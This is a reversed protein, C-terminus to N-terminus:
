SSFDTHVADASNYVCTFKLKASQVLNQVKQRPDLFSWNLSSPHLWLGVCLDAFFVLPSVSPQSLLMLEFKLWILPTYTLPILISEVWKCKSYFTCFSLQSTNYDDTVYIQIKGSDWNMQCVCLTLMHWAYIVQTVCVLLKRWLRSRSCLVSLRFVQEVSSRFKSMLCGVVDEAVSLPFFRSLPRCLDSQVVVLISRSTSVM